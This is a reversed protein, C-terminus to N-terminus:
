PRGGRLAAIFANIYAQREGAGLSGTTNRRARLVAELAAAVRGEIYRELALAVRPDREAKFKELQPELVEKVQAELSM